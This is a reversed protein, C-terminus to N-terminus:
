PIFIGGREINDFQWAATMMILSHMFTYNHCGIKSNKYNDPMCSMTCQVQVVATATSSESSMSANNFSPIRLLTSKSELLRDRTVTIAM